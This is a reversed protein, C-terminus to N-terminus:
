DLEISTFRFGDTETIEIKKPKPPDLPLARIYSPAYGDRRREREERLVKIAVDENDQMIQRQIREMWMYPMNRDGTVLEELPLMWERQTDRDLYRVRIVLADWEIRYDIAFRDILGKQVLAHLQDEFFRTVNQVAAM